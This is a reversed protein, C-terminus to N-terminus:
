KPVASLCKGFVENPSSRFVRSYQNLFGFGPLVMTKPVTTAVSINYVGQCDFMAISFEVNISSKRLLFQYFLPFKGNGDLYNLHGNLEPIDWCAMNGLRWPLQRRLNSSTPGAITVQHPGLPGDWTFFIQTLQINRIFFPSTWPSLVKPKQSTTWLGIVSSCVFFHISSEIKIRM